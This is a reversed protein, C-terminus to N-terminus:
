SESRESNDCEPADFRTVEPKGDAGRRVVALLKGALWIAVDEGGFGEGVGAPADFRNVVDAVVDDLTVPEAAEPVFVEGYGITPTPGYSERLDKANTAMFAVRRFEAEWAPRM